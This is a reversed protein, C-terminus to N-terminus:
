SYYPHTGKNIAEKTLYANIFYAEASSIVISPKNYKMIAYYRTRGNVTRKMTKKVRSIDISKNKLKKIMEDYVENYNTKIRKVDISM